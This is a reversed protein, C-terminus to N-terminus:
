GSRARRDARRARRALRPHHRRAAHRAPAAGDGGEGQCSLRCGALDPDVACGRRARGPFVSGDRGVRCRGQRRVGGRDGVTRRDHRHGGPRVGTRKATAVYINGPGVIKDVRPVNDTGYALAAVAQAGGIRFARDVGAIHAAALVLDNM